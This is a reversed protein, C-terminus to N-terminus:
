LIAKRSELLDKIKKDKELLELELEKIRKELQVNKELALELSKDVNEYHNAILQDATPPLGAYTEHNKHPM